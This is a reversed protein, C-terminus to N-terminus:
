APMGHILRDFMEKGMIDPLMNLVLAALIIVTVILLIDLKRFSKM